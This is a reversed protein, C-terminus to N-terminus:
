NNYYSKSFVDIIIIYRDVTYKIAWITDDVNM